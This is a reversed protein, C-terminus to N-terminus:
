TNISEPWAKPLSQNPWSGLTSLPCLQFKAPLNIPLLLSKLSILSQPKTLVDNKDLNMFAMGEGDPNIALRSLNAREIQFFICNVVTPMTEQGDKPDRWWREDCSDSARWQNWTSLIVRYFLNQLLGYEQIETHKMHWFPTLKKPFACRLLGIKLTVSRHFGLTGSRVAARELQGNQLMDSCLSNWGNTSWTFVTKDWGPSACLQELTRQPNCRVSHPCWFMGTPCVPTPLAVHGPCCWERM